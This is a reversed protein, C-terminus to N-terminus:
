GLNEYHMQVANYEDLRNDIPPPLRYDETFVEFERIEPYDGYWDGDEIQLRVYRGSIPPQFQHLHTVTEDALTRSM